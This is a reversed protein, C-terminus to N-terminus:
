LSNFLELVEEKKRKSVPVESDDALRLYGGDAKEYSTIFNINVLHSQHVRLFGFDSLLEDFEKLTKSVLLKNGNELFFETYNKFSECRIIEQVKTLHISEATKLIIKKDGNSATNLNSLFASIKTEINNREIEHKCKDLATIVDPISVPKLLYDIASIRFAKVAYEQYATIFLVTCNGEPIKEIIDFGSGDPLHIDLVLLDVNNHNLFDCAEKVTGAHHVVDFDPHQNVIDVLMERSYIEDDVILSRFM